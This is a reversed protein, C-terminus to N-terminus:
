KEDGKIQKPKVLKNEYNSSDLAKNSQPKDSKKESVKESTDKTAVKMDIFCKALGESLEYKKGAVYTKQRIGDDCGDATEIMLVEM